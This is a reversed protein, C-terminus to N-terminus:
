FELQKLMYDRAIKSIAGNVDKMSFGAGAILDLDEKVIDQMVAKIFDGMRKIDPQGGNLMNFTEQLMQELRWDPTVQVALANIKDVREADVPTFTKVKTKAAHKEGKVKFWYGSNNYGPTVCKWVIGEGIMPGKEPTAGLQKAVPCEEEVAITMDSLQQQIDQPRAFDIEIEYHPFQYISFINNPFANCHSSARQHVLQVEDSEFWQREDEVIRAIGFIVFMKPLQTIGVGKQINGGCWEGFILMAEGPHLPKCLTAQKFLEAFADRQGHVYTAFGANDSLPTIINERSQCWTNGEDDLAVGANTGHLKITGEFKLTPLPRSTDYISNGNEDKGVWQARSTVNHVINRFQEISPFKIMRTMDTHSTVLATM